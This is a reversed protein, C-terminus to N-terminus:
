KEYGHEKAWALLKNLESCTADLAEKQEAIIIDKKGLMDDKENLMANKENLMIDMENLMAAKEDLMDQWGRQTRYYDERAECQMRIKEDQTLQYITDTAESIYENKQALMTIEEWTTAKFLSAWHDLQCARDEETALKTQTLDLVSLRLKDSYITHNKVNLFEYTAYFEPNEPFLTFNLLGIQIVPRLSQYKEGAM